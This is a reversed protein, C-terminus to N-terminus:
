EEKISTPLNSIFRDVVPDWLFKKRITDCAENCVSNLKDDNTEMEHIKMAWSEADFDNFVFGNNNSLLTTSGGNVTTFVCNSFYMAELLVMGFIEQKSPLIFLKSESYIYQMQENEIYKIHLIEKHLNSDIAKFCNNIYRENGDGIVVLKLSSNYENKLRSFIKLVFPFNKRDSLTGVFLLCKHKCMFDIVQETAPKILSNTDFKDADLGVGLTCINTYGKKELYEKALESKTYIKRVQSNIKKTFLLDYIPEIFPLKFLNYYPGSYLVCKTSKKSLLYTMIQSFETVIILDYCDLFDKSLLRPYYGTRLIKYGKEWLIRIQGDANDMFIDIKSKDSYYVIDTSIGRKLLSKAFGIEQMNYSNINPKYPGSRVYLVRKIM